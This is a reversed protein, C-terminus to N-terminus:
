HSDLTAIADYSRDLICKRGFIPQDIETNKTVTLGRMFSANPYPSNPDPQLAVGNEDTIAYKYYANYAYIGNVFRIKGFRIRGIDDHTEILVDDVARDLVLEPAGMMPGYVYRMGNPTQSITVAHTNGDLRCYFVTNTPVRDVLMPDEALTVGRM